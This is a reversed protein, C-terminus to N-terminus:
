RSRSPTASKAVFQWILLPGCPVQQLKAHTASLSAKSLVVNMLSRPSKMRRSAARSFRAAAARSADELIGLALTVPRAAFLARTRCRRSFAEPRDRFGDLRQAMSHHGPQPYRTM